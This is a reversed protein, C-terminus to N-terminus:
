TKLLLYYALNFSENNTKHILIEDPMLDCKQKKFYFKKKARKKQRTNCSTKEFSHLILKTEIIKWTGSDKISFFAHNAESYDYKGNEYINLTIWSYFDRGGRYEGCIDCENNQGFTQYSYLLFLLQILTKM